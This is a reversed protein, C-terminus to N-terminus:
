QAQANAIKKLIQQVMSWENADVIESLILMGQENKSVRSIYIVNDLESGVQEGKSYVVYTKTRDDSILYTVIKVEETTGDVKKILIMGNDDM